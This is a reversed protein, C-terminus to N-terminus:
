KYHFDVCQILTQNIENEIEDDSVIIDLLKGGGKGLSDELILQFWKMAQDFERLELSYRLFKFYDDM